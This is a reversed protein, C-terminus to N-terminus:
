AIDLKAFIFSRYQLADFFDFCFNSVDGGIQLVFQSIISYSGEGTPLWSELSRAALLSRLFPRLEATGEIGGAQTTPDKPKISCVRHLFTQLEATTWGLSRSPLGAPNLM